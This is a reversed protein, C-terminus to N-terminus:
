PNRVKAGGIPNSESFRWDARYDPTLKQKTLAARVMAIPMSSEQLIADHFARESMKGSEVLETHLERFQLAGLLYAAQYLPGYTTMFSRRVEATANDREHGVQDVLYDICQRPTWKGLHFSLSFVIRACRHLRWFLAGMRNEPTAQYGRQYLLMEWYVAWGEGWFPTSFPRRETHNRAYIFAQLEHGPILEHFVTARAFHINNGRMSQLKQDHSMSSVPYSVSITEGGTFFPNVLQRQPSMMQMTWTERAIMPVTILDHKELYEIADWALDRILYPQQGAPVHLTKVKELAQKWDDGFGMERSARKMESVCWEFEREGIAILEEPTYSVMEGALENLLADRGIPRGVIDSGDRRASGGARERLLNAYSELAEDVAKFSARVSDAWQSDGGANRDFWDTFQTRLRGLGRGVGSVRTAAAGGKELEAEALKRADEVEKKLAQLTEAVKAPAPKEQQSRSEEALDTITSEFPTFQATAEENTGGRFDLSRMQYEIRNRLLVYNIQDGHSIKDFDLKQLAALWNQYYERTPAAVRGAGRGGGGGGRGGRGGRGAFREIVGRMQSQPASLLEQLDPVQPAKGELKIPAPTNSDSVRIHTDHGSLKSDAMDRLFKAYDQFAQDAEKYPQAVWWTFLPDYDNYFSFWDKLEARLTNVTELALSATASDLAQRWETVRKALEDVRRAANIPDVSEIRRRSEELQFIIEAFPLTVKAQKKADDDLRNLDRWVSEMLRAYEEQADKSLKSTDVKKLEALWDNGFLKLRAYRTPSLTFSNARTLNRRDAEYRQAVARMENQPPSLLQRLEPVTLSAAGRPSEPLAAEGTWGLLGSAIFVILAALNARPGTM